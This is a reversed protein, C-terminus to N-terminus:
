PGGTIAWYEQYSMNEGVTFLQPVMCRTSSIAGSSSASSPPVLRFLLSVPLLGHCRKEENHYVHALLIEGGTQGVCRGRLGLHACADLREM